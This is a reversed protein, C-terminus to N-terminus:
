FKRLPIKAMHIKIMHGTILTLPLSCALEPLVVLPGSREPIFTQAVEGPSTGYGASSSASPLPFVFHTSFLYNYVGTVVVCATVSILVTITMLLEEKITIHKHTHITYVYQLM